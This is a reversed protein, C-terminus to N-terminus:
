PRPAPSALSEGTAPQSSAPKTIRDSEKWVDREPHAPAPSVKIVPPTAAMTEPRSPPLPNELGTAEPITANGPRSSVVPPPLVPHTGSGADPVTKIAISPIGPEPKSGSPQPPTGTFFYLGLALAAAIGLTACTPTMWAPRSPQRPVAPGKGYSLVAHRQSITLSLPAEQRFATALRHATRSLTVAEERLTADTLLAADFATQEAPTAEGLVCASFRSQDPSTSM